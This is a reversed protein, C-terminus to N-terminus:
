LGWSESMVKAMREIAAEMEDKQLGDSADTFYIENLLMRLLGGARASVVATSFALRFHGIGREGGRTATTAKEAGQWPEYYHGPALLVKNDALTKWLEDMFAQEPDEITADDTFKAFRTSKSIYVTIWIFMGGTPPVFSFIPTDTGKAFAVLGEAGKVTTTEAERVDFSRTIADCMQNRRARYQDRLNALWTLYGHIGWESLLKQLIIQSWGSPSQTEVETGRLLREILMPAATFWGLRFGPALTKSFTDLRIVRGQTDFSLFSPVLSAKFAEPSQPETGSVVDKGAESLRYTPFQLFTYPDDEVIIVDFEVCVDYIEQRRKAGMTSGTPNSGVPVIYM